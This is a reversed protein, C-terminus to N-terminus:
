PSSGEMENLTNVCRSDGFEWGEASVINVVENGTWLLTTSNSLSYSVISWQTELCLKCWPLSPIPKGFSLFIQELTAQSITYTEINLQQKNRELLEFLDAPAGEEVYFSGTSLTAEKLEFYFNSHSLLFAHVDQIATTTPSQSSSRVKVDISYGGGFKSKLHQITGLCAFQGNVMIGLRNCVRESSVLSCLIAFLLHVARGNM